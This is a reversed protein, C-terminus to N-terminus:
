EVEIEIEIEEEEEKQNEKKETKILKEKSKSLEFLSNKLNVAFHSTNHMYFQNFLEYLKGKQYLHFKLVHNLIRFFIEFFM